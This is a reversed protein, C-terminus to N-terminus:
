RLETTKGDVIIREARLENQNATSAYAEITVTKGKVLTNPDLGRTMMRGPPSLYVETRKGEHTVWMMAHPNEIKIEDIPATISLTEGANYSTWGHHAFAAGSPIAIVATAILLTRLM